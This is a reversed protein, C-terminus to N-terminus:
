WGGSAGGGGFGGGGGSFGGGGGFGGGGFGAGRYRGHSGRSGMLFPLFFFGRSGFVLLLILLYAWSPLGRRSRRQGSRRAADPIPLEEGSAVKMIASVGALVGADMNGELFEPAIQERIIRSAIVDPLVGELGYGVEIRVRRENPAVTLIVGNDLGKHGIKWAEAIEM